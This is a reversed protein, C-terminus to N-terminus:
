AGGVTLYLLLGILGCFELAPLSFPGYDRRLLRQPVNRPRGKAPANSMWDLESQSVLPAFPGTGPSSKDSVRLRAAKDRTDPAYRKSSNM